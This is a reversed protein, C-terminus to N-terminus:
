SIFPLERTSVPDRRSCLCGSFTTNKLSSSPESNRSIGGAVSSVWITVTLSNFHPFCSCYDGCQCNTQTKGGLHHLIEGILVKICHFQAYAIHHVINGGYSDIESAGKRPHIEVRSVALVPIEVGNSLKKMEQYM